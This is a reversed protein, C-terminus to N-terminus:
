ASVEGNADKPLEPAIILTNEQTALWLSYDVRVSPLKRHFVDGGGGSEVEIYSPLSVHQAVFDKLDIMTKKIELSDKLLAEQMKEDRIKRWRERVTNFVEYANVAHLSQNNSTKTKKELAISVLNAIEEIDQTQLGAYETNGTSEYINVWEPLNNEDYRKQLEDPGMFQDSDPYYKTAEDRRLSMLFAEGPDLKSVLRREQVFGKHLWAEAKIEDIRLIKNLKPIYYLSYRTEEEPSIDEDSARYLGITEPLFKFCQPILKQFETKLERDVEAYLPSDIGYANQNVYAQRVANDLVELYPKLGRNIEPSRRDQNGQGTEKGVREMAMMNYWLGLKYNNRTDRSIWQDRQLSTNFNKNRAGEQCIRGTPM